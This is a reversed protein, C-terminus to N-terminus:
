IPLPPPSVASSPKLLGLAHAIRAVFGTGASAAGAAGAGARHDEPFAVAHRARADLLACCGGTLVAGDVNMGALALITIINPSTCGACFFDARPM